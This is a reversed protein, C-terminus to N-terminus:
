RPQHLKILTNELLLAEKESFVVITEISAIRPVLYPVMLRGDRGVNFYQKVRVRLNKAKGVYLVVGQADKMIYVGPQVPFQDLNKTDYPM